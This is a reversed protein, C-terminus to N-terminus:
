STSVDNDVKFVETYSQTKLVIISLILVIYDSEDMKKKETNSVLILYGLFIILLPILNCFLVVLLAKLKKERYKILLWNKIKDLIYREVLVLLCILIALGIISIMLHEISTDGQILPISFFFGLFSIITIYILLKIIM